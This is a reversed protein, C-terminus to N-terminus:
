IEDLREPAFVRSYRVDAITQRLRITTFLSSSGPHKVAPSVCKAVPQLASRNGLVPGTRLWLGM